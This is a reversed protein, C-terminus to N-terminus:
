KYDQVVLYNKKDKTYMKTRNSLTMLNEMLIIYKRTKRM